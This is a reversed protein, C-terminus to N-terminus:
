RSCSSHASCRAGSRAAGASCRRSCSRWRCRSTSCRATDLFSVYYGYVAGAVGVLVASAMFAIARTCPRAVGIGAAKDEDDRIAVLGLGLKSRKIWATMAVSLLLLGLLAYYFPWNQYEVDWTPLPM